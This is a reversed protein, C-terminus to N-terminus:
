FQESYQSSTLSYHERPSFTLMDKEKANNQKAGKNDQLFHQSDNLGGFLFIILIYSKLFFVCFALCGFVQLQFYKKNV